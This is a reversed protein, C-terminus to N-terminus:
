SVYGRTVSRRQIDELAVLSAEVAASVARRNAAVWPVGRVTNILAAATTRDRALTAVLEWSRGLGKAVISAALHVV